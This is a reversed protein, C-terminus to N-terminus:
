NAGSTTCGTYRVHAMPMLATPDIWVGQPNSPDSHVRIAYHLHPGGTSGAGPAGPQGGSAGIARGRAVLDGPAVSIASLHALWIQWGGNEIVVLNGYPGNEAAWVVLGSMTTQVEAGPDVLLDVGTHGPYHPDQFGCFLDLRANVQGWKVFPGALPLGVPPQATADVYAQYPVRTPGATVAREM